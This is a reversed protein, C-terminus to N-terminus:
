GWSSRAFHYGRDHVNARHVDVPNEKADEALLEYVRNRLEAPLSLFPFPEPPARRASLSAWFSGLDRAVRGWFTGLGSGDNDSHDHDDDIRKRKGLAWPSPPRM